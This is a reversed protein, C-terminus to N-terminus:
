GQYELTQAHDPKLKIAKKYARGSKDLYVGALKRYCYGLNNLAQPFDSHENLSKEYLEIAQTWNKRNQADVGDNYDIIYQPTEKGAKTPIRYDATLELASVFILIAFLIIKM